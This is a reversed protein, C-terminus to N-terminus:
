GFAVVIEDNATGQSRSNRFKWQLRRDSDEFEPVEPVVSNMSVGFLQGASQGLQFSISIPSQQRAAQYLEPTAADDQEFLDLDMTVTRRGPSIARPLTSGFERARLDLNNGLQVAASTITYFRTAVAGMWAQGLHGAVITYDFNGAAPEAPFATLQGSGSSFSTSDILDQAVGSFQFEHYDGNINVSFKDIAAGSLIRHVATAPSWYDFISLSPLVSALGYTVTPGISAGATPAISFPANVLVTSADIVAAVFRLEGNYQVAQQVALGHPATFGITTVSSTSSSTAGHFIQGPAGMAAQFLPGYAPSAGPQSLTTMYTKIDFTTKRRGNPPNGVFTRSGNKDRREGLELQQRATLKVAPFRNQAAISGVQGYAAELQCYWRNDNSSIYSSM